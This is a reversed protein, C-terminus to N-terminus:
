AYQFGEFSRIGWVQFNQFESKKKEVKGLNIHPLNRHLGRPADSLKKLNSKESTLLYISFFYVFIEWFLGYKVFIM